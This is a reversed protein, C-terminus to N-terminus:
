WDDWTTCDDRKFDVVETGDHKKRPTELYKWFLDRAQEVESASAVNAIVAYGKEDLHALMRKISEQDELSFRESPFATIQVPNTSPLSHSTM